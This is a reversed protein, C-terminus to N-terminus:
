PTAGLLARDGDALLADIRNNAAAGAVEIVAIQGEVVATQLFIVETLDLEGAAYGAEVGRLAAAADQDLGSALAATITDTRAVLARSTAQETEASAVTAGLEARAAAAQGSAAGTRAQGQHWLPVTLGLTPGMAREAGDQEYFAGIEAAPLSARRAARLAAEAASANARASAVDAREAEADGTPAPAADEPRGVLDEALVPRGVVAALASLADRENAGAELLDGAARAQELRALRLELETADGVAQRAETARLLRTALEFNEALLAAREHAVVAEVWAARIEAAAVLRARELAYATAEVRLSAAQRAALGEGTLSLPQALDADLRDGGLGYGVSLSPNDQFLLTQRAEGRAAIHEAEAAAVSPHAPLGLRVADVATLPAAMAVGFLFIYM